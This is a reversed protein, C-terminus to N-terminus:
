ITLKFKVQEGQFLNAKTAQIKYPANNTQNHLHQHQNICNIPGLERQHISKYKEPQGLLKKSSQQGQACWMHFKSYSKHMRLSQLLYFFKTSYYHLLGSWATAKQPTYSLIIM